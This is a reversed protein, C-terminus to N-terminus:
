MFGQRLVCINTAIIKCCHIQWGDSWFELTRYSWGWKRSAKWTNMVICTWLTHTHQPSFTDFYIVFWRFYQLSISKVNTTCVARRWLLSLFLFITTTSKEGLHLYDCILFSATRTETLPLLLSFIPSGGWGTKWADNAMCPFSVADASGKQQSPTCQWASVM